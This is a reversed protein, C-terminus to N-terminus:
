PISARWARTRLISGSALTVGGRSVTVRVRKVGSEAPVVASATAADVWEVTITRRFKGMGSVSSGDRARAGDESVGNLDDVDDADARGLFAEGAELGLATTAVSADEYPLSRAEELAEAVLSQALGRAQADQRRAVAASAASLVAVVGASLLGVAAIAEALSFGRRAISRPRRM